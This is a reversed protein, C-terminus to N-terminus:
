PRRAVMGILDSRGVHQHGEALVDEYQELDLIQMSACLDRLLEPTYLHSLRGPGGTAFELQKPGYGQVLLLGGPRLAAIMNAFLRQREEPDAFQIFIAVVFDFAEDQWPYQECSAVQFDVVVGSERALQRAKEVALDAIDFAQVKLGQRALWVSNRGEGDAVCLATGGSKFLSEHRALWENPAKGFLYGPRAFRRNWTDHPDDFSM